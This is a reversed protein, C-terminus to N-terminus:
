GIRYRRRFDECGRAFKILSAEDNSHLAVLKRWNKKHREASRAGLLQLTDRNRHADKFRLVAESTIKECDWIDLIRLPLPLFNELCQDTLQPCNQLELEEISKPVYGMGADTIRKCEILALQKLPVDAIAEMGSDYLRVNVLKLTSLPLKVLDRMTVDSIYPCNSFQLNSISCPLQRVCDQTIGLLAVCQLIQLDKPLRHLGANTVQECEFLSVGHLHPPLKQIDADCFDKGILVMNTIQDLPFSTLLKELAAPTRVTITQISREMLSRFEHNVERLTVSSRQDLFRLVNPMTDVLRAFDGLTSFDRSSEMVRTSFDSNVFSEVDGVNAASTMAAPVVPDIIKEAAQDLSETPQSPDITCDSTRCGDSAASSAAELTPGVVTESVEIAADGRMCHQDHVAAITEDLAQGSAEISVNLQTPIGSDVSSEVEEVNSPSTMIAPSVQEIIRGADHNPPDTMQAPDPIRDLASGSSPAASSAAESTPGAVTGLGEITTDGRRCCHDHVASLTEDLAQRRAEIFSNLQNRAPSGVRWFAVKNPLRATSPHRATLDFFGTTGTGGSVDDTTGMVARQLEATALRMKQCAQEKERDQTSHQFEKAADAVREALSEIESAASRFAQVHAGTQFRRPFQAMLNASIAVACLAASVASSHEADNASPEAKHALVLANNVAVLPQFHDNLFVFNPTNEKAMWNPPNKEPAILLQQNEKPSVTSRLARFRALMHEICGHAPVESEGTLASAPATSIQNPHSDLDSPVRHSVEFRVAAPANKFFPFCPM